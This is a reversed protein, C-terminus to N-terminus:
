YQSPTHTFSWNGVEFDLQFLTLSLKIKTNGGSQVRWNCVLGGLPYQTVNLDHLMYYKSQAFIAKNALIQLLPILCPM